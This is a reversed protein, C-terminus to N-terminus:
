LFLIYLTLGSVVPIFLNDWGRGCIGETFTIALAGIGVKFLIWVDPRDRLSILPAALILATIVFFIISGEVTKHGAINYEKKGIRRGIIGALGDSIGLILASLQFILPDIRWFAAASLMLGVPFLVSGLNGGGARHLSELLKARRTWFLFISFFAGLLLATSLTMLYPWFFCSIGAGIHLIKRTTRCSVGARFLLEALTFLVTIFLLLAALRM